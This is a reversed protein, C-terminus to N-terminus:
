RMAKHYCHCDAHDKKFHFLAGAHFWLESALLLVLSPSVFICWDIPPHRHGDPSASCFLFSILRDSVMQLHRCCILFLSSLFADISQHGDSSTLSLYAIARTCCTINASYWLLFGIGNGPFCSHVREIYQPVFGLVQSSRSGASLLFLLYTGGDTWTSSRFHM